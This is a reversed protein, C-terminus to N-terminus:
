DHCQGVHEQPQCSLLCDQSEFHHSTGELTICWLLGLTASWDRVEKSVLKPCLRMAGQQQEQAERKSSSICWAQVAQTRWFSSSIPVSGRTGDFAGKVTVVKTSSVCETAEFTTVCHWMVHLCLGLRHSTISLVPGVSGRTHMNRRILEEPAFHMYFGLTVSLRIVKCSLRAGWGLAPLTSPGACAQRHM